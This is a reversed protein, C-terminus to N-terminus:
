KKKKPKAPAKTPKMEKLEQELFKLFDNKEEILNTLVQIELRTDGILNMQDEKTWEKKKM